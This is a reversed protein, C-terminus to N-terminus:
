VVVNVLRPPRAIVRRPASDGLAAAIKPLSLALAVAEDESISPSVEVKDRVKGNVQVVMTESSVVLM